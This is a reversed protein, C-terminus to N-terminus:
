NINMVAWQTARIQVDLDMNQPVVHRVNMGNNDELKHKFILILREGKPNGVLIKYAFGKHM